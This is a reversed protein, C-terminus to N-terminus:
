DGTRLASGGALVIVERPEIRELVLDSFGSALEVVVPVSAGPAAGSVDVFARVAENTLRSLRSEPGQVAVDVRSPRVRAPSGRVDLKLGSFTRTGRRERVHVLVDVQPSGQIRVLPDGIGINVNKSVTGSMGEVSVAETFVSKLASIRSRPGALRVKAPEVEVSSVEFAADPVGAVRAAISVTRELTQELNLTVSAPSLKVVTVGFPRRVLAETLHFFHEGEELGKLDIRVSVAAPDLQRVIAPTARVRVEVENAAEGVVELNGPVNQLEVPVTLGVESTKEGAVLFWLALAIALSTLKLGANDFFSRRV